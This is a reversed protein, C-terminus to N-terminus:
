ILQTHDLLLRPLSQVCVLPCREALEVLCLFWDLRSHISCGKLSVWTYVCDVLGERYLGGRIDVGLFDEWDLDSGGMDNPMDKVELTLNFDGCILLPLRQFISAVGALERWISEEDCNHPWLGLSYGRLGTGRGNFNSQRQFNARELTRSTSCHKM